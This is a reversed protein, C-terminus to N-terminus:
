VRACIPGYSPRQKKVFKQKSCDQEECSEADSPTTKIIYYFLQSGSPDFRCIFELPTAVRSQLSQIAPIIWVM